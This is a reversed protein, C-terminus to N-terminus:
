RTYHYLYYGNFNNKRLYTGWRNHLTAGTITAHEGFAEWTFTLHTWRWTSDHIPTRPTYAAQSDTIVQLLCLFDDRNGNLIREIFEKAPISYTTAPVTITDRLHEDFSIQMKAPDISYAFGHVWECLYTFNKFTNATYNVIM